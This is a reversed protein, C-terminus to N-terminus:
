EGITEQEDDHSGFDTEILVACSDYRGIVDTARHIRWMPQKCNINCCEINNVPSIYNVDVGAIAFITDDHIIACHDYRPFNMSATITWSNNEVSYVEVSSLSKSQQDCGGLAYILNGHAVAALSSRAINLAAIYTQEGTKTDIRECSSLTQDHCEGGIVYIITDIKVATHGCRAQKLNPINHDDVRECKEGDVAIVEISSLEKRVDGGGIVYLMDRIAVVAANTRPTKLIDHHVAWTNNDVNFVQISRQSASHMGGVVYVYNKVVAVCSFYCKLPADCLPTFDNKEFDYRTVSHPFRCGGIIACCKRKRAM